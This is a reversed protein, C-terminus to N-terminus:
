VLMGGIVAGAVISTLWWPTFTTQANVKSSLPRFEKPTGAATFAWGPKTLILIGAAAAGTVATRMLPSDMVGLATYVKELPEVFFRM